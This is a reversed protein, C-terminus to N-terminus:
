LQLRKIDEMRFDIRLTFITRVENPTLRWSPMETNNEPNWYESLESVKDLNLLTAIQSLRTMKDRVSWSTAGTLYTGLARVEQDLVLGGLRNFTSKKIARELRNTVETALISVLADYNRPSLANKFSNLLGDLQVIFYQVFTEGAEYTSLEEETLHHSYNLFEDVWPNLRPRIASSRLQQIGFDVTAKLADLVTKLETLCGDLLHREVPSISPFTGAIEQEMTQWLTEIYETSMDANNLQVIFNTRVRDADSSHLKGQQLSTQIANYAQALDIYGSPYGSKLPAKLATVFDGDLCSAVNNIVACTGNISQTTLSRRISKRLIFFVDDVMSSCQQGAEYTDLGIAKMVSEEMFYREFLLYTSLIEQMQRSLDCQKVVREYDSQINKQADKDQLYTEANTQLRRRMFRFYLEIRSHMVTIEAIIADIDKPNLKDISGGSPKRYHGLTSQISNNAGGAGGSRQASDNVQKIRYQIQRHKNFELLLNKVELDCERQLITVMDLLSTCEQGYFAEIIPQNVEVVRAFNELIATLRDAFALHMRREAKAIDQTNRLEKQAKASLKQCIYGCFKEIGIRHCGVLPFIKFFREVSALDDHQVAEDFRKSILERMKETADELTRVADSVSTISGQVDDATRQLLQQDMALFRAIHGAGKEYDEENIAKVVGQSCLQLDILDHVRQQCESARCRALDLRRVKASVSEALQATNVIQLNLKNSDNEVTLLTAMARGIGSLKAEVQCQKSLVAELRANVEAEKAAIRKLGEDVKETTSIDWSSILESLHLTNM